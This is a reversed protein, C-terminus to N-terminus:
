ALVFGEYSNKASDALLKKYTPIGGFYCLAERKKGPINAGQYWSDTPPFLTANWLDNVTKSYEREADPKPDVRAKGQDRMTVMLDRVWNGQIEGCTPGNAFATPAHPGYFFYMNPYGSTSIGLYTQTGKTWKDKLAEGKGNKIDINLIGGTVSDFGTALILVDVPIEGEKETKVGKETIELIPSKRVNILDVNNQNFVEYYRQELCPRKTGFAHPPITPALLEQKVPDNIRAATHERWYNYATDNAAKNFLVDQYTGIWFAFGGQQYLYDYHARREADSVELANKPVFDSGLATFDTHTQDFIEKYESEEPFKWKSQDKVNHQQMPLAINPTRQYVTLHAVEPGIEQIVQVGSAGTGIIAVRKNKTDVGGEPWVNTHHMEGKFTDLGKFTPTYKKSAFGTCLILHSAWVSKGGETKVLWQNRTDDFEASVVRTNYEIDKSLNLVKDVHNFYKRLEKYGPFREEWKYGKWTNEQTLQYTPVSSDVRAGPYRNLWWTGGMGAGGEYIKVNFGQERLKNLIHIGAFGAGVVLADLVQEGPM